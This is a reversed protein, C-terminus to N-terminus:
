QKHLLKEVVPPAAFYAIVIGVWDALLDVYDSPRDIPLLGQVVEDVVAFVAVAIVARWVTHRTLRTARDLRKCDFIVAGCLGGLMVAHILKDLHPIPPLNDPQIDSPLWTAYLVVMMTLLSPWFRLVRKM